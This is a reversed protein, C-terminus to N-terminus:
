IPLYRPEQTATLSENIENPLSDKSHRRGLEIELYGDPISKFVHM